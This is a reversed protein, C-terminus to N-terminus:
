PQVIVSGGTVNVPIATAGVDSLRVDLGLDTSGPSIAEITFTALTGSGSPYPGPGLVVAVIVAKGAGDDAGRNAIFVQGGASALFGGNDVSKVSIVSPDFHLEVQYGAVNEACSLHASISFVDGVTVVNVM